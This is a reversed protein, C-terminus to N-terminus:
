QNKGNVMADIRSSEAPFIYSLLQHVRKRESEPSRSYINIIEDLKADKFMPLAISMPATDYVKKMNDIAATINTRGKDPSMSMEDLGKRHYTYIFDRLPAGSKDTFTKIIASRNRNDELMRWGSQGSSQAMYVSNDAKASFRDGGEPSFSDFDLGLILYAYFNLLATLNSEFTNESFILPEGERYEFEIRTDKHNLLTTTYTSNYVPRSSQIQLDGRMMPEDYEKITLFLRCEIRENPSFRADSWDRNNMYDAIASQLTTFVSLGAGQVQSRDIEVTCNLERALLSLPFLLTAAIWLRKTM